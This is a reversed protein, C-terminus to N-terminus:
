SKGPNGSTKNKGANGTNKAKYYKQYNRESFPIHIDILSKQEKSVKPELLFTKNKSEKCETCSHILQPCKDCWKNKM